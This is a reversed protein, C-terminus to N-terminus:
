VIALWGLSFEELFIPLMGTTMGLVIVVVSLCCTLAFSIIGLILCTRGLGKSEPDPRSQFVIGIIIGVIPIWLSLIYLFFKMCGSYQQGYYVPQPPPYQQYM